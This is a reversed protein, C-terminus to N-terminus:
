RSHYPALCHNALNPSYYLLQNLLLSSPELKALQRMECGKLIHIASLVATCLEPKICLPIDHLNLCGSTKQKLILTLPYGKLVYIAESCSTVPVLVTHRRYSTERDKVITSIKNKHGKPIISEMTSSQFWKLTM